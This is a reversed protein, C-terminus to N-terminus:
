GGRGRGGRKASAPGPRSRKLPVKEEEEDEESSIDEGQLLGRADSGKTTNGSFFNRFELM